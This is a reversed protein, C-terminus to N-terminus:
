PLDGFNIVEISFEEISYIPLGDVTLLGRARFRGRRDDVSTVEAEVQVQRNKRIVQGRYTWQHPVGPIVTRLELPPGAGGWREVAIVRLLQLLSELGLSGPWVPDQHFHAKFFWAEPDVDITGRIFGLGASGGSPLYAEIEDVMRFAPAPFPPRKPLPFSRAVSSEEPTLIRPKEDALGVQHALAEPPFFGFYTTGRYVPGHDDIVEMSFHQILMGAGSSVNTMEVTTRLIGSRGDVPRLVTADGGLNRFHLDLDSGLASGVHAALWGCPQLAVELLISFPMEQQGSEEFYWANEPVSYHATCAAGAEMKTPEGTVEVIRDLFCYPPAPLRAIFRDEDFARFAPGFAASPRGLAFELIQPHDAYPTGLSPDAAPVQHGGGIASPLLTSAPEVRTSGQWLRSIKDEDLGVLKLSMGEMEVIQRGDALMMADVVVYPEPMFGIERVEVEFGAVSTEPIVQGRCRLRGPIGPVPMAAVETEEGIWGWALLLVRLTHLCCEYMLTGPMVPDDVFHCTLFWDDADIDLEASARGLRHKGGQVDIVEVRDILQLYGGPITLPRQLALGAHSEGFAGVLDGSRLRELGASDLHCRSPSVPPRWNEPATSNRVPRRDSVVIGRGAALEDPSFFGACGDRMSLFPAGDITGEFRFRFLLTKGQTFFEDIHIDYRITSGPPALDRHFTVEADLLRYVSLGRTHLDAGLWACLFLDAQGSEVAISTPINGCDLYWSDSKVDQETIIRGSGLSLPEGEISLIRDVLMLPEDPLRVRTPFADIERHREGLVRTISGRAFELCRSRDFLVPEIQPPSLVETASAVVGERAQQLEIRRNRVATLRERLSDPGQPGDPIRASPRSVQTPPRQRTPTQPFRPILFPARREEIVIQPAESAVSANDAVLFNREFPVREAILTALIRALSCEPDEGRHCLALTRHPLDQLIKHILRSCSAGPGPEIFIRAGDRYTREVLRTFDFGQQGQELIAEAIADPDIALPRASATGYLVTDGTSEVPWRHLELYERAVESVVPSHVASVGELPLFNWQHRDILNQIVSEEGGIVCERPANIIMRHVRDVGELAADVERPSRDVVGARWCVESGHPLRWHRAAAECPGALAHTFLESGELRILMGDRDRWAGSAFLMTTEGLSHGFAIAPVIGAAKLLGTFACGLSVQALIADQCSLPQSNDNWLMESRFQSRAFSSPALQNQLIASWRSLLTGGAGPFLSGSGPYAFAIKGIKGLASPSTLVAGRSRDPTEHAEGRIQRRASEVAELLGTTDRAYLGVARHANSDCGAVEHWLRGLRPMPLNHHSSALEELQELRLLLEADNQAEIAFTSWRVEGVPRTSLALCPTSKEALVVHASSGDIAMTSAIARRAGRDCDNLWPQAQRRSDGTETPLVRHQLAAIGQAMSALFAACGLHGVRRAASARRSSGDREPSQNAGALTSEVRDEDPNGSGHLCHLEIQDLSIGALSLAKKRSSNLALPTPRPPELGGGSASGLGEIVALIPEDNEQADELRRLLFTIAGEGWNGEAPAGWAAAELRQRCIRSRIDSGGEVAAVLAVDLHGDELLSVARKLARFGSTEDSSFTHCPGGASFERGLRSAAISGLAGMVRNADLPPSVQELLQSLWEQYTADGGDLGLAQYWQRAREQLRWRLHFDTSRLDLGIGVLVGGRKGLDTMNCSALAEGAAKLLLLQQPLMEEIEAPPVRFQGRKCSVTGVPEGSRDGIDIALRRLWDSSSVGHDGPIPERIEDSELGLLQASVSRWGHWRGIDAGVGVVAVQPVRRQPPIDISVSTAVSRPEPAEEVLLHANIGGFGFASVAARRRQGNRRRWPKSSALISFPGGDALAGPPPSQFYPQPPLTENRMALLVKTLGAAGAATLTHGISGKVSGLVCQGERWRQKEWLKELSALEIADGVPTGTAHCEIFDVDEPSWGSQQYAAELARMQGESSPALLSGDTDNSIGVSHIVGLISDGDGLADELRRLMFIGGGEGVILGEGRRDFPLCVGAPSLARLQSFGMQTYLCDPRSVGGALVDDFRGASLEAVAYEIAYLSSACAADLCTAGGEIGLAKALLGAPLGASHRDLPHARPEGPARRDIGGSTGLLSEELTDLITADSIDSTADTPLVLNGLIVGTREPNFLGRRRRAAEIGCSLTLSFLPDLKELLAGDLHGCDEPPSIDDLFCGRLSRVRDVQPEAAGSIGAADVPWRGAPVERACSKGDRILRWFSDLDPGGPFHAGIGVIAIPVNSM